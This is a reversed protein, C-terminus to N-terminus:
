TADSRFGFLTLNWLWSSDYGNEPSRATLSSVTNEKIADMRRSWFVISKGPTTEKTLNEPSVTEDIHTVRRLVCRYPRRGTSPDVHSDILRELQEAWSIRLEDSDPVGHNEKWFRDYVDGYEVCLTMHAKPLTEENDLPSLSFGGEYTSSQHSVKFLCNISDNPDTDKRYINADLAHHMVVSSVTDGNAFYGNM